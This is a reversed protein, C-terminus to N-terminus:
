VDFTICAKSPGIELEHYTAAKVQRELPKRLGSASAGLFSAKVEFGSDKQELRLKEVAGVVLGESELLMIQENLFNVLIEELDKGDVVIEWDKDHPVCRPDTMLSWMGYSAQVLIEEVDSAWIRIKVDAVHEEIQFGGMAM